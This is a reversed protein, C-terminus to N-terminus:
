RTRLAAFRSLPPEASRLVASESLLEPMPLFQTQNAPGAAAVVVRNMETATNESSPPLWADGPATTVCVDGARVSVAWLVGGAVVRARGVLGVTVVVVRGVGVVAPAVVVASAVVVAGRVVVVVRGVVLDAVVVVVAAAVVVLGALVVVVVVVVVLVVVRLVVVRRAWGFGGAVVALRPRVANPTTGSTYPSV